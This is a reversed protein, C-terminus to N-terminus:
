NPLVDYFINYNDAGQKNYISRFSRPPLLYRDVSGILVLENLLHVLSSPVLLEFTSIMVILKQLKM